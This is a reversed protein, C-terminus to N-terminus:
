QIIKLMLMHKLLHLDLLRLSDKIEKCTAIHSRTTVDYIRNVALYLNSLANYGYGTYSVLDMVALNNIYSDKVDRWPSYSVNSTDEKDNVNVFEEISLHIKLLQMHNIM